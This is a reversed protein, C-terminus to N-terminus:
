PTMRKHVGSRSIRVNSAPAPLPPSRRGRPTPRLITWGLALVLASVILGGGLELDRVWASPQAHPAPGSFPNSPRDHHARTMVSGPPAQPDVRTMASGPPGLDGDVADIRGQARAPDHAGGESGQEESKAAAAQRQKAEKRAAGGSPPAPNIPPPTPPIVTAQVSIPTV